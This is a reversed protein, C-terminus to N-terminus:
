GPVPIRTSGELAHNGCSKERIVIFNGQGFLCLIYAVTAGGGGM